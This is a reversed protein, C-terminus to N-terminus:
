FERGKREIERAWQEQSLKSGQALGISMSGPNEVCFIAASLAEEGATRAGLTIRGGKWLNLLLEKAAQLAFIDSAQAQMEAEEQTQERRYNTLTPVYARKRM